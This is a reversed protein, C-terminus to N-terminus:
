LDSIQIIANIFSCVPTAHHKSNIYYVTYLVGMGFHIFHFRGVMRGQIKTMVRRKSATKAWSTSIARQTNRGITPTPGPLNKVCQTKPLLPAKSCAHGSPITMTSSPFPARRTLLLVRRRWAIRTTSPAGDPSTCKLRTMKSSPRIQCAFLLSLSHVHVM